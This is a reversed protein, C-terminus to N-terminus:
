SRMKMNTPIRGNGHPNGVCQGRADFELGHYPCRVHDGHVIKGKSLPSFRHACIDAIAAPRGDAQRFLVVPDNLFTRPVLEGPSLDQAWLAVYWTNRLFGM